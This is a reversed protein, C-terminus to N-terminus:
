YRSEDTKLPILHCTRIKSQKMGYAHAPGLDLGLGIKMGDYKIAM